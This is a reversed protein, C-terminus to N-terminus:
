EKNRISENLTLIDFFQFKEKGFEAGAYVYENVSKGEFILPLLSIGQINNEKPQEINLFDLVTPMIDILQVLGNIRKGNKINPHKIILPVHIVEDYLTGRNTGARGFRGNKGFMEGHESYIVVITNDLLSNDELYQLFLGVSNDAMAIEGDYQSILYDVDGQTLDVPIQNNQQFYYTRYM